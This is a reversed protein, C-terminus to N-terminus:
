RYAFNQVYFNYMSDCAKKVQDEDQMNRLVKTLYTILTDTMERVSRVRDEPTTTSLESISRSYKIQWDRISKWIFGMTALKSFPLFKNLVAALQEVIARQEPALKLRKFDEEEKQIFEPKFISAM